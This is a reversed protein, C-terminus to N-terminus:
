AEIHKSVFKHSLSQYGLLEKFDSYASFPHDEESIFVIDITEFYVPLKLSFLLFIDYSSYLRLNQGQSKIGWTALRSSLKGFKGSKASSATCVTPRVAIRRCLQM